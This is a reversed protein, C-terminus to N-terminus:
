ALFNVKPVMLADTPPYLPHATETLGRKRTCHRRTEVCASSALDPVSSREVGSAAPFGAIAEWLMGPNLRWRVARLVARLLFQCFFRPPPSDGTRGQHVTGSWILALM